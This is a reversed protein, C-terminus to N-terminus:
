PQGLGSGNDGFFRRFFPDNFFPSVSRREVVKRTAYVNVVAPAVQKVIPAFSLKVQAASAPVQRNDQQQAQAAGTLGVILGLLVAISVRFAGRSKATAM